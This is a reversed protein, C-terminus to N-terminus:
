AWGAFLVPGERESLASAGRPPDRLPVAHALREQEEARDGAEDAHGRASEAGVRELSSQRGVEQGDEFGASAILHVM